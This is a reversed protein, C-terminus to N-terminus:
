VLQEALENMSEDLNDMLLRPEGYSFNRRYIYKGSKGVATFFVHFRVEKHKNKYEHVAKLINTAEPSLKRECRFKAWTKPFKEQLNFAITNQNYGWYEGRKFDGLYVLKHGGYPIQKGTKGRYVNAAIEILSLDGEEWKDLVEVLNDPNNLLEIYFNEGMSIIFIIFDELAPGNFEEYRVRLFGWATPICVLGIFVSILKNFEIIEDTPLADLLAYLEDYFKDSDRGKGKQSKNNAEKFIGWFKKEDMNNKMAGSNMNSITGIIEELMNFRWFNYSFSLLYRLLNVVQEDVMKKRKNIYRYFTQDM